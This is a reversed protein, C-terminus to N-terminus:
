TAPKTEPKTVVPKTAPKTPAIVTPKEPVAIEKDKNIPKITPKDVNPINPKEITPKDITPKEVTPINPKDITPKQPREIEPTENKPTVDPVTPKTVKIEFDVPKTNKDIVYPKPPEPKLPQTRGKEGTYYEWREKLMASFASDRENKFKQLGSIYGRVYEEYSDQASVNVSAVIAFVFVLTLIRALIKM